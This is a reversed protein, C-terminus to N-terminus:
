SSDYMLAFCERPFLIWSEFIYKNRSLFLGVELALCHWTGKKADRPCPKIWLLKIVFQWFIVQIKLPANLTELMQHLGEGRKEFCSKISIYNVKLTTNM